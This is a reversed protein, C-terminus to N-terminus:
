SNLVAMLNDYVSLRRFISAKKLFIIGARVNMCRYLSIDEGDIMIKGADRQVIGVM